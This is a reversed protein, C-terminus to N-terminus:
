LRQGANAKIMGRRTVIGFEAGLEVTDAGVDPRVGILVPQRLTGAATVEAYEVEVVVHPEVYRTDGDVLDVFPSGDQPITRLFRELQEATRRPLSIGVQGVYRLEGDLYGGVALSGTGTHRLSTGGVVVLRRRRFKVKIWDKSRAGPRYIGAPAKVMVGEMGTAACAELLDDTLGEDFRRMLQWRGSDVMLTELNARREHLPRSTLDTGDLWMVDFVVMYLPITAVTSTSPRHVNMRRQLTQFCCAGDANLAIIEADLVVSRDLLVSPIAGLDPYCDTVDHGNRSRIALTGDHVTIIARCGDWKPEVVYGLGAPPTATTALM